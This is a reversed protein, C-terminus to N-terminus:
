WPEAHRYLMTLGKLLERQEERFRRLEKKKGSLEVCIMVEESSQASRSSDTEEPMKGFSAHATARLDGRRTAQELIQRYLPPTWWDALLGSSKPPPKATSSIFIRLSGLEDEPPDKGEAQADHSRPAVESTPSSPIPTTETSSSADSSATSASTASTATSNVAPETATPGPPSETTPVTLETGASPLLSTPTKRVMRLSLGSPFASGQSKPTGIRQSLYIGSHGSVAYSVFCAIALYVVLGSGLLDGNWLAFLELGMITCALPTNTAGAFVAVFGLGAFLDVPAGLLRAMTNGLAAGVFFLPTVEGGKFGSSLTITTFLIKWWWSFWGAGGDRFCSTISVADPQDPPGIVGLGLYDRTGLLTALGIVLLGGLVPRLVARGILQRFLHHLGHAMEAFLVSALGFAVAALAVKGALVWSVNPLHEVLSLDAFGGIYYHGHGVGWGAVTADGIISAALCPILAEYSMRGIALVELAFIAGTLPTGFVAGFGAAVGAMILIRTDHPSLRLLHCFSGAIGGGMQVATGERGASGGCLHTLVTGGLVLPAMRLPVGGDPEHIQDMILNNGAEVSKGFTQYVWAILVGAIPLLYLLWPFQWRLETARDLSWLFLAVASGVAVGLPATILLWKILFQLIALHERVDWRFPMGHEGPKGFYSRVNSKSKM